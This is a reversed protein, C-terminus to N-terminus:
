SANVVGHRALLKAPVVRSCCHETKTKLFQQDDQQQEDQKKDHQRCNCIEDGREEQLAKSQRWAPREERQPQEYDNIGCEHICAIPVQVEKDPGHDETWHPNREVDSPEPQYTAKPPSHTQKADTCCPLVRSCEQETCYTRDCGRSRPRTPCLSPDAM